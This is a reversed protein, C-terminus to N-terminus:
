QLEIRQTIISYPRMGPGCDGIAPNQFLSNSPPGRHSKVISSTMLEKRLIMDVLYM